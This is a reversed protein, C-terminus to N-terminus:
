QIAGFRRMIRLGFARQQEYSQERLWERVVRGGAVDQRSSYFASIQEHIQEDIAIVNETNHIAEPGFRQVNSPTQEVIHHWQKGPGAPGMAKKFGSMSKWARFAAPQTGTAAGTSGHSSMAVAGPALAFTFGDAAIAVTEVQGVATYVLGAQAEARVAAQAAGPLGRVTTGLTAGTSGIAATALMVFARAANRGMVKGFREGAERLEDFTVARDCEAMLQRFGQILGWFTDVGVYIILAATLVAAVGKTAPEPVTWLLAYTAATWLAAQMLAEPHAMDKVAEWLENMVAGKALALALTFRADGTVSPGEKLLGLCDGQRGTRECWRLYARTLEVEAQPLESALHEGSGLPTIRRSRVDFLYSGSRPAVEFLRRAAEQPRQSPHLTRALRAVAEKVEDEDLAVPEAAQESRPVHVSPAGRGTDLRVVRTTGGCGPLVVWALLFLWRLLM